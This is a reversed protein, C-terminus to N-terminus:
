PPAIVLVDDYLLSRLSPHPGADGLQYGLLLRASTPAVQAGAATNGTAPLPVTSCSSVATSSAPNQPVIVLSIVCPGATFFRPQTNANDLLDVDLPVGGDAYAMTEVLQANGTGDGRLEFSVQQVGGNSAPDYVLVLDLLPVLAGQFSGPEGKLSFSLAVSGGPPPLSRSQLYCPQQFLTSIPYTVQLADNVLGLAAGADTPCVIQQWRTDGDPITQTRDFDDCLLASPECLFAGDSADLGADADADVGPQVSAGADSDPAAQGDTSADEGAEAHLSADGAAADGQAPGDLGDAPDVLQCALVLAPLVLSAIVLRHLRM